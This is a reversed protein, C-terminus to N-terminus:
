AGATDGQELHIVGISRLTTAHDPHLDGRVRRQTQAVSTLINEGEDLKGEQVLTDSLASRTQLTTPHDPGHVRLEADM